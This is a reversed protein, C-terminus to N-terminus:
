LRLDNNFSQDCSTRAIILGPLLLIIERRTVFRTSFVIKNHGGFVRYPYYNYLIPHGQSPYLYINGSISVINDSDFVPAINNADRAIYEQMRQFLTM